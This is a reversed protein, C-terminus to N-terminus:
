EIHYIRPNGGFVCVCECFCPIRATQNMERESPMFSPVKGDGAVCGILMIETRQHTAFVRLVSDRAINRYCVRRVRIDRQSEPNMSLTLPISFSVFTACLTPAARSSAVVLTQFNLQTAISPFFLRSCRVCPARLHLSLIRMLM